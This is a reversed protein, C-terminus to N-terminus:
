GKKTTPTTSGYWSEETSKGETDVTDGPEFTDEGVAKAVRTMFRIMEPHNSMGTEGLAHTLEPTGFKQLAANGAAVSADWNDNGIEKDAKAADTWETVRDVFQQAAAEAQDKVQEGYTAVLQNAQKQTLGLEKFLPSMAEAMKEDLEMGEPVEFEYKGDEPVVDQDADDNKGDADDDGKGAKDDDKDSTDGDKDADDSADGAGATDDGDKAANANLVADPNDASKDDGGEGGNNADDGTDGGAGGGSGEDAKDFVPLYRRIIENILM